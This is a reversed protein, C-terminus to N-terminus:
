QQGRGVLGQHYAGRAAQGPSLRHRPAIPPTAHGAQFTPRRDLNQGSASRRTGATPSMPSRQQGRIVRTLPVREGPLYTTTRPPSPPSGAILLHLCTDSRVARRPRTANAPHHELAAHHQENRDSSRDRPPLGAGQYPWPPLASVGLLAYASDKERSRRRSGARCPAAPSPNGDLNDNGSDNDDGSDGPPGDPVARM